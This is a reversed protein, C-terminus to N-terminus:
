ILSKTMIWDIQKEEGMYFAHDGTQVFGMKKYFRIANENKEWVGLWIREKNREKALEIAKNILDKGLGQKHYKKRIYIREIELSDRGMAESQADDTNIKLYGAMEGNAYLFYFESSARSLEKELQSLNFAKELYAKMTEPSNQNRFTEKFTEISIEQLLGLDDVTCRTMQITM